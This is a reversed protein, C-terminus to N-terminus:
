LGAWCTIHPSPWFEPLFLYWARGSLSDIPLGAMIRDREQRIKSADFSMLINLARTKSRRTEPQEDVALRVVSCSSLDVNRGCPITSSGARSGRGGLAACGSFGASGLVVPVLRPELPSFVPLRISQSSLQLFFQEALFGDFGFHHPSYM